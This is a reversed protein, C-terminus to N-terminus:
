FLPLFPIAALEITWGHGEDADVGIKAFLYASMKRSRSADMHANFVYSLFQPVHTFLLFSVHNSKSLWVNRTEDKRVAGCQVFGVHTLSMENNKRM